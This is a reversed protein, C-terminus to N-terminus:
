HKLFKESNSSINAIISRIQPLIPTNPNNSISFDSKEILLQVSAQREIRSIVEDRQMANRRCVRSICLERDAHVCVTYDVTDSFGSEFLIASEIAVVPEKIRGCWEVFDDKVKPHVISNVTQLNEPNGFICSALYKRNLQAAGSYCEEGFHGVLRDRVEADCNMIRKAAADCDYVPIGMSRLIASVVSKGSGIGGTIGLRTQM